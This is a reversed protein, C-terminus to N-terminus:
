KVVVKADSVVGGETMPTFGTAPDVPTGLFARTSTRNSSDTLAALRPLTRSSKFPEGTLMVLVNDLLLRNSVNRGVLRSADFRM